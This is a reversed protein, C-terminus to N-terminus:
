LEYGKMMYSMIDKIDQISKGYHLQANVGDPDVLFYLTTSEDLTETKMAEKFYEIIPHTSAGNLTAMEMVHIKRGAKVMQEEFDKCDKDDYNVESHEYPFVLVQMSYPWVSQFNEITDFIADPAVKSGACSKVVPM